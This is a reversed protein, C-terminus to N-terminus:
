QNDGHLMDSLQDDSMPHRDDSGSHTYTGRDTGSAPVTDAQKREESPVIPKKDEGRLKGRYLAMTEM